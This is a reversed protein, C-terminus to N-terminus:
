PKLETVDWELYEAVHMMQSIIHELESSDLSGNGDTDYLRFMFELKDEPRGGELLSLYFVIDKLQVMDLPGPLAPTKLPTSNSKILKLGSLPKWRGEQERRSTMGVSVRPKDTSSPSSKPRKNSFSMFLHQCFEEPLESELFTQMFVKFGEFDIELNLIEQKEEPNYKALVGDGHFEQLVDKLKKTS